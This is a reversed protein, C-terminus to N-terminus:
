IRVQLLPIVDGRNRATALAILAQAFRLSHSISIKLYHPIVECLEELQMCRVLCSRLIPCSVQTDSLFLATMGVDYLSM